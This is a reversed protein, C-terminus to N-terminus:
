FILKTNKNPLALGLDIWPNIQFGMKQDKKFHRYTLWFNPFGFFFNVLLLLVALDIWFRLLFPVHISFQPTLNKVLPETGFRWTWELLHNGYWLITGPKVMLRSMVWMVEKAFIPNRGDKLNCYPGYPCQVNLGLLTKFSIPRFIVGAFIGQKSPTTHKTNLKSLKIGVYAKTHKLPNHAWLVM